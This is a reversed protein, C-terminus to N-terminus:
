NGSAPDAPRNQAAPEPQQARGRPASGVTYSIGLYAARTGYHRTTLQVTEPDTGALEYRTLGLPDTLRLTVAARGRGLTRRLAVDDTVYAGFRGAVSEFPASYGMAGQVETEPQPKWTASARASWTLAGVNLGPEM